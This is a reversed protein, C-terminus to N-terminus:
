FSKGIRITATAGMMDTVDVKQANGDASENPPVRSMNESPVWFYLFVNSVFLILCVCVCVCVGVYFLYRLCFFSLFFLPGVDGRCFVRLCMFSEGGEGSGAPWLCAAALASSWPPPVWSLLLSLAKFHNM